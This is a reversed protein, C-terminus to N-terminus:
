KDLNSTSFGIRALMKWCTCGAFGQEDTRTALFIPQHTSVPSNSLSSRCPFRARRCLSLCLNVLTCSFASRSKRISREAPRKQTINTTVFRNERLATRHLTSRHWSLTYVKSGVWKACTSRGALWMCAQWELRMDVEETTQPFELFRIWWASM